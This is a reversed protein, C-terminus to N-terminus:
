VLSSSSEHHLTTAVRFGGGPRAGAELTGGYLAARERMGILGHGGGVGAVLAAAAGRGDDAVELHVAHPEYRVCVDVRAAGAHKIVNTLAEQVIRYAALDVGPPIGNREGAYDVRVPVGAQTVRAALEDLGGLGPAPAMEGPSDPDERLVGLLRRMETLADRSAENITELIAKADEPRSDIVHAGVGSQVAIVSMAHAVVDHLERAIRVREASVARVSEELRQRQEDAARLELQELYAGQVQKRNGWAAAVGFIAWNSIVNGLNLDGGEPRLSFMVPIFVVLAAFLGVTLRRRCSAAVTYLGIAVPLASGHDPYGRLYDGIAAVTVVGFVPLPFRRRYLLAGTGVVLLVVGIWDAERPFEPTRDSGLFSALSIATLLVALVGDFWYPSVKRKRTWFSPQTVLGLRRRAPEPAM